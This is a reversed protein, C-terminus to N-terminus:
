KILPHVGSSPQPGQMREVLKEFEEPSANTIMESTIKPERPAATSGGEAHARKGLTTPTPSEPTAPPQRSQIIKDLYLAGAPGDLQAQMQEPLSRFEEQIDPWRERIGAHGDVQSLWELQKDAEDRQKMEEYPGLAEKIRKDISPAVVSDVAEDVELGAPEPEPAPAPQDAASLRLRLLEDYKDRWENRETTLEGIRAQASDEPEPESVPEEPPLEPPTIGEELPTPEPDPEVPPPEEPPPAPEEAAQKELLEPDSALLDAFPERAV